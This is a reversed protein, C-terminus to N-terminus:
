PAGAAAPPQQMEAEAGAIARDILSKLEAGKAGAAAVQRDRLAEAQPKRGTATYVMALTAVAEAAPAPAAVAKELLKTAGEVDGGQLYVGVVEMATLTKREIATTALAEAKAPQGGLTFAVLMLLVAERLDPKRKLIEEVLPIARAGKQDQLLIQAQMLTIRDGDPGKRLPELAAVADDSRGLQRLLDARSLATRMNEPHAAHAKDALALAKDLQKAAVYASLLASLARDDHLPLDLKELMTVAEAAGAQGLVQALAIGAEVDKQQEVAERLVKEAGVADDQMLMVQALAAKGGRVTADLTLGKEISARAEALLAVKQAEPVTAVRQAQLIGKSMHAEALDPHSKLVEDARQLAKVPQDLAMAVDVLFLRALPDDQRALAAECVPVGKDAMGQDVDTVGQAFLAAPLGPSLALAAALNSRTQPFQSESRHAHARVVLWLAAATNAPVPTPKQMPKPALLEIVDGGHRVGLRLRTLLVPTQVGASEIVFEFPEGRAKLVAAVLFAAEIPHVARTETATAQGQGAMAAWLAGTSQVPHQRRTTTKQETLKGAQARKRLEAVATATDKAATAFATLAADPTGPPVAAAGELGAARMQTALDTAAPAAATAAHKEAFKRQDVVWIWNIAGAILTLAVLVGAAIALLRSKAPPSLPTAPGPELTRHCTPCRLDAASAPTVLADCSPCFLKM